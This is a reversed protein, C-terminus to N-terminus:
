PHHAEDIAKLLRKAWQEMIMNADPRDWWINSVDYADSMIPGGLSPAGVEYTRVAAIQQQNRPDLIEGELGLGLSRNVKYATTIAARIEGTGATPTDVVQYHDALTKVIIERFRAAAQQKQQPTLTTGSYETVLVEIPALTFTNCAALQKRNVYRWTSNNVKTLGSYSSLFGSPQTMQTQCGTWAAAGLTFSACILLIRNLKTKM